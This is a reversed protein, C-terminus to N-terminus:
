RVFGHETLFASTIGPTAKQQLREVYKALIDVELNVLDGPRKQALNTSQQTFVVLSVTFSNGQCGVVTLSVGDVAIFGKEVIYRLLEAPAEIRMLIAREEPTLSIVKGPGDVHGQVLHGGLRSTLTMARELNVPDGPRLRGLNTRRLTEPMVEISFGDAELAVVTLCAGNVNISDGLRTGELVKRAQITLQPTVLRKVRGVEEVIGTFM